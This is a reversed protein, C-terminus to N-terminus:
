QIYGEGDFLDILPFSSFSGASVFMFAFSDFVLCLLGSLVCWFLINLLGLILVLIQKKVM